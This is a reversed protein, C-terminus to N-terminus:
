PATTPDPVVLKHQILLGVYFDAVGDPIPGILEATKTEILKKAEAATQGYFYDTSILEETIADLSLADLADTENALERLFLEVEEQINLDHIRGTITQLFFYNMSSIAISKLDRTGNITTM